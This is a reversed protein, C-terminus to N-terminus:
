CTLYPIHQRSVCKTLDLVNYKFTQAAEPSLVQAYLTWGPYTGNQIAEYLDQTAFDPNSGVNCLSTLMGLIACRSRKARLWKGAIANADANTFNKIGQM